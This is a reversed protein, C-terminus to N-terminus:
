PLLLDRGQGLIRSVEEAPLQELTLLEGPTDFAPQLPMEYYINDWWQGLKFGAHRFYGIQRFGMAEHFKESNENPSVVVAYALYYGLARLLDLLSQYLARGVQRRRADEAVYVSLEVCWDFAQRERYAHAYAYGLIRGGEACVLYPYRGAIQRIRDQFAALTPVEYEFTVGTERIFPEYIALIQAADERCVKRIEM